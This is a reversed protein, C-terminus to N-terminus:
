PQKELSLRLYGSQDPGRTIQYSTDPLQYTAGAPLVAKIDAGLAQIVVRDTCRGRSGTVSPLMAQLTTFGRRQRLTELLQAVTNFPGNKSTHQLGILDVRVLELLDDAMGAFLNSLRVKTTSGQELSSLVGSTDAEQTHRAFRSRMERLTRDIEGNEQRGTRAEYLLRALVMHGDFRLLGAVYPATALKAALNHNECCALTALRLQLSLGGSEVARKVAPRALEQQTFERLFWVLSRNVMDPPFDLAKSSAVLSHRLVLHGGNELVRGVAVAGGTCLTQLNQHNLPNSRQNPMSWEDLAVTGHVTIFECVARSDPASGTDPAIVSPAAPAMARVVAHAIKSKGQNTSGDFTPQDPLFAVLPYENSMVGNTRRLQSAFLPLELLVKAADQDTAWSLELNPFAQVLADAPWSLPYTSPMMNTLADRAHTHEGPDHVNWAYAVADAPSGTYPMVKGGQALWVGALRLGTQFFGTNHNPDPMLESWPGALVCMPLDALPTQALLKDVSVQTLVGRCAATLPHTMRPPLGTPCGLGKLLATLGSRWNGPVNSARESAVFMSVGQHAVVLGSPRTRTHKLVHLLALAKVWAPPAEQDSTLLLAHVFRRWECRGLHAPWGCTTHAADLAKLWTTEDEAPDLDCIGYLQTLIGALTAHAQYGAGALFCRAKAWVLPAANANTTPYVLGSMPMLQCFRVWVDLEDDEVPAQYQWPTSSFIDDLAAQVDADIVPFLKHAEAENTPYIAVTLSGNRAALARSIETRAEPTIVTM